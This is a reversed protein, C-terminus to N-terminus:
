AEFDRSNTGYAEIEPFYLKSLFRLVTEGTTEKEFFQRSLDDGLLHSAVSKTRMGNFKVGCQNGLKVLSSRDLASELLWSLSKENFLTLFRQYCDIM